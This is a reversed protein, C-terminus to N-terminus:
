KASASMWHAGDGPEELPFLPARRRHYPLSAMDVTTSGPTNVRIITPCVPRYAPVPAHVGKALLIAFTSPDLGCSTLQGLSFPPVRLSTLQITLGGDTELIATEGMDFRPNGGHRVEPETFRGDHLSRVRATVALPQGHLTDTKGGVEFDSRAGVGIARAQRAAQPDYLSVFASPGGRAHILGALTTGDGASGGGVNDGMDLLCAPGPLRAAQELAEVPSVLRPIFEDRRSLLSAALEDACAQALAGEGDSVVAFSTGMEPVDAYPFGLAISVALIRERGRIDDALEYLPLCPAESTGQLLINIAMPPFAGAQVPRVEGRLTRAMLEAAEMGRAHTDLHPNTRYAILADCAALMAPSLNAHADVTVVLPITTGLAVRLRGLWHADADRHQESVAAGHAAALVGDFPGRAAVEGLLDDVLRDFAQNTITGGPVALASFVPVAEVGVAALGDLFGGMEDYTGAWRERLEDGTHVEFLALDTPTSLFTNSEHRLGVVGVRM